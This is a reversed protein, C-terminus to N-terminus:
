FIIKEGVTYEKKQFTETAMHKKASVILNVSWSYEHM